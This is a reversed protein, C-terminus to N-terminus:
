LELEGSEWKARVLALRRDYDLEKVFQNKELFTNWFDQTLCEVKACFIEEKLARTKLANEKTTIAQIELASILANEDDLEIQTKIDALPNNGTNAFEKLKSVFLGEGIRQGKENLKMFLAYFRDAFDQVQINSLNWSDGIAAKAKSVSNNSIGLQGLKGLELSLSNSDKERELSADATRHKMRDKTRYDYPLHEANIRYNDQAIKRCIEKDLEIIRFGGRGTKSKISIIFAKKKLNRVLVETTDKTSGIAQSMEELTIPESVNSQNKICSDYIFQLLLGQSPGISKLVPFGEILYDSANPTKKLKGNPTENPIVNSTKEAITERINPSYEPFTGNDNQSYEGYMRSDYTTREAYTRRENPTHDINTRYDNQTQETNIRSENPIHLSDQNIEKARLVDENVKPEFIPKPSDGVNTSIQEAALSNILSAKKELGQDLDKSQIKEHAEKEILERLLQDPRKAEKKKQKRAEAKALAQELPSLM